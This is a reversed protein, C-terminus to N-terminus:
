STSHSSASRSPKPAANESPRLAAASSRASGRGTPSGRGRRTGGCRCRGPARGPAPPAPRNRRRGPAGDASCATPCPPSRWRATDAHSRTGRWGWRAAGARGIRAVRQPQDARFRRVEGMRLAAVDRLQALAGAVAQAHVRLVRRGTADGIAIQDDHPVGVARHADGHRRVSSTM